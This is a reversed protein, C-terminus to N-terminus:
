RGAAATEWSPPAAMWASSFRSLGSASRNIPPHREAKEKGDHGKMAIEEAEPESAKAELPEVGAQGPLGALQKDDCVTGDPRVTGRRKEGGTVM